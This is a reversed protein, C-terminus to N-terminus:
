KQTNLSMEGVEDLFITGKNALEFRGKRQEIASTFSGKEHGFLESELLSEPLSACAVKVLPGTRRLSNRHITEAVLGKGTGTEGMILVSADTRAVRGITKYIDLMKASHGVM